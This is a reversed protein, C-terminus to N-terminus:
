IIEIGSIIIKNFNNLIELADDPSLKVRGEFSKDLNNIKEIRRNHIYRIQSFSVYSKKSEVGDKNPLGLDEFVITNEEFDVEQSTLPAVLFMDGKRSLIIAYHGDKLEDGVGLGYNVHIIDGFKLNYPFNKKSVKGLESKLSEKTALGVKIKSRLSQEKEHNENLNLLDLFWKAAFKGENLPISILKGKLANIHGLLTNDIEKRTKITDAM